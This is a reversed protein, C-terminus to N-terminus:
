IPQDSMRSGCDNVPSAWVVHDRCSLALLWEQVTMGVPPVALFLSKATCSAAGVRRSQRAPPASPGTRSQCYAVPARLPVAPGRSLRTAAPTLRVLPWASAAAGGARISPAANPRASAHRHRPAALRVQTQVAPPLRKVTSGTEGVAV